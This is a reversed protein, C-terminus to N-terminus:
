NNINNELFIYRVTWDSISELNSSYRKIAIHSVRKQIDVFDCKGLQFVLLFLISTIIPLIRREPKIEKLSFIMLPILISFQKIGQNPALIIILLTLLIHFLTIIRNGSKYLFYYFLIFNIFSLIILLYFGFSM